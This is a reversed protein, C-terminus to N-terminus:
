SWVIEYAPASAPPVNWHLSLEAAYVDGPGIIPVVGALVGLGALAGLGLGTLAGTLAGSEAHSGETLVSTSWATLIGCQSASKAKTSAPKKM